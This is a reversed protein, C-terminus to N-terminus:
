VLLHWQQCPFVGACNLLDNVLSFLFFFFKFIHHKLFKLFSYIVKYCSTFHDAERNKALAKIDSIPSAPKLHSGDAQGRPPDTMGFVIGLVAIAGM